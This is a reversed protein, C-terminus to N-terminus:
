GAELEALVAVVVSFKTDNGGGQDGRYLPVVGVGGSGSGM